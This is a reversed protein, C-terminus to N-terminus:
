YLDAGPQMQKWGSQSSIYLYKDDMNGNYTYNKKKKDADNM